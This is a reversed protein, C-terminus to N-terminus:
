VPHFGFVTLTLKTTHANKVKTFVQVFGHKPALDQKQKFHSSSCQIFKRDQSSDVKQNCKFCAIYSEVRGVGIIEADVTESDLVTMPLVEQLESNIPLQTFKRPQRLQSREVGTCLPM